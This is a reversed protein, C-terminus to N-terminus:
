NNRKILKITTESGEKIGKKYSQYQILSIGIVLLFIGIMHYPKTITFRFPKISLHTEGIWLFMAVTVIIGLIIKTM